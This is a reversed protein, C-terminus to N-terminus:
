APKFILSYGAYLHLPQPFHFSRPESGGARFSTLSVGLHPGLCAICLDGRRFGPAWLSPIRGAECETNGRPGIVAQPGPDSVAAQGEFPGKRQGVRGNETRADAQNEDRRNRQSRRHRARARLVSSQSAPMRSTRWPLKFTPFSVSNHSLQM